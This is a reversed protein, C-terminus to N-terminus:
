KEDNRSHFVTKILEKLEKLEKVFQKQKDRRLLYSYIMAMTWGAVYGYTTFVKAGTFYEICIPIAFFIIPSVWVILFRKM